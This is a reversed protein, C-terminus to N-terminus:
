IVKHQVKWRCLWGVSPNFDSGQVATMKRAKEEIFLVSLRAEEALKQQFWVYQITREGCGGGESGTQVKSGQKCWQICFFFHAKASVLRSLQPVSVGFSKAASTQTM